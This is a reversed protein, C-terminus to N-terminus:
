VEIVQKTEYLLVIDTPMDANSSPTYTVEDDLLKFHEFTNTVWTGDVNRCQVSLPYYGNLIEKANFITYDRTELKISNLVVGVPVIMGILEGTIVVKNSDRSLMVKKMM